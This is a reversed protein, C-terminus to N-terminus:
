ITVMAIDRPHGCFEDSKSDGGMSRGVTFIKNPILSINPPLLWNKIYKKVSVCILLTFKPTVPGFYVLNECSTALDHKYTQWWSLKWVILCLIVFSPLYTCQWFIQSAKLNWPQLGGLGGFTANQLIMKCFTFFGMPPSPVTERDNFLYVSRRSHQHFFWHISHLMQVLSSHKM